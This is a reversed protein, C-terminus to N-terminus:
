ERLTVPTRDQARLLRNVIDLRISGDPRLLLAPDTRGVGGRRRWAEIITQIDKLREPSSSLFDGRFTSMGPLSRMSRYAIFRVADYSDDFLASLFVPIWDPGSAQQAPQWGMAWAVLARQGADGRLMWVLSAALTRDDDSLDAPTQGYWKALVDSTWGLSKDLHCLNCANPRGVTVSEKVSPSSVTHSRVAKLLGYSSYPMHCNYCSSGTSEPAHKTHSALNARFKPHCQLCAENGERGVSVQHTSAWTATSRQDDAQKHMTHCSFCSMTRSSDTARAFCPSEVLGNYERGSVRVLGDSWFLDRLYTPDGTMRRQVLPEDAQTRRVLLRTASIDDGPRYSPGNWDLLREERDPFLWVGHCQGCVASSTRPNLQAPQVITSDHRKSFHFWYRRFPSQNAEAHRGGPGHCAECAVGFEAVKSDPAVHGEATAQAGARPQGHTTHCNICVSNWIGTTSGPFLNPPALFVMSRPIWRREAILYSGPLQGLERGKGTDYWYVEQNHSGTTMVISRTLRAPASGRLPNWDPDDFEAWLERGRRDLRMPRGQVGAIVQGDFDSRVTEPSAVQTMTRHFSAKWTDYQAPHCGRCTSSSTFGDQPSSVPRTTIRSEPPSHQRAVAVYLLVGAALGLVAVVKIM